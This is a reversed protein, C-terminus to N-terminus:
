KASRVNGGADIVIEVKVTGVIAMKKALEPYMPPVKSKIKRDTEEAYAKSNLSAVGSVGIAMVVALVIRVAARCPKRNWNM